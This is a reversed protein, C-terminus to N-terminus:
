SVAERGTLEPMCLAIEPHDTILGDAGLRKMRVMEERTNVTWVVVKTGLGHLRSLLEEDVLQLKPNVYEPVFGPRAPFSDLVAPDEVLLGYCLGPMISKAATLIRNDFSQLRIRADIGSEMIDSIVLSAYAAPDPHAVGDLEPRSKVELNYVMEAPRGIRCLHEEVTRFVDPLAPRAAHIRTQHPFEPSVTGCDLGAIEEYDMSYLYRRSSAGVGSASQVWPDHSVVIRLDKSVVLDLEIVPCGLDVAKCFAHLTNEPYFARAGRHAQIEFTMAAM